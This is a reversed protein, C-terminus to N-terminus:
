SQLEAVSAGAVLGDVNAFHKDYTFLALEHQIATAAIWMDNAPVPRGRLRLGAFVGAYREATEGDVTLIGVKKVHLFAELEMRNEQTKTGWAFGALIEGLVVPNLFIAPSVSMIEIAEPLGRKFARYANTDVLIGKM